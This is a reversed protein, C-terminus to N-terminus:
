QLIDFTTTGLSGQDNNKKKAKLVHISSISVETGFIVFTLNLWSYVKLHM